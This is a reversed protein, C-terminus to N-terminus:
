CGTLGAVMALATLTKKV